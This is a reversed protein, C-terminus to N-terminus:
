GGVKDWDAGRLMEDGDDKLESVAEKTYRLISRKAKERLRLRVRSETNLGTWKLVRPILPANLLLTLLVFGSVWTAMETKIHKMPVRPSDEGYDQSVFAQVMILSIAGRLAAFTTFTVGSWTLIQEQQRFNVLPKFAAICLFRIIHMAIYLFPIRWTLYFLDWVFPRKLHYVQNFSRAIFNSAQAGAFFFVVGNM